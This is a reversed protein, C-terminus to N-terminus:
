VVSRKVFVVSRPQSFRFTTYNPQICNYIGYQRQLQQNYALQLVFFLQNHTKLQSTYFLCSIKHWFTLLNLQNSKVVLMKKTQDFFVLLKLINFGVVSRIIYLYFFKVTVECSLRVVVKRVFSPLQKLPQSHFLAYGFNRMKLKTKIM